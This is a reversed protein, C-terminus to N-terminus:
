SSFGMSRQHMALFPFCSRILCSAVRSCGTPNANSCEPYMCVYCQSETCLVAYYIAYCRLDPIDKREVWFEM